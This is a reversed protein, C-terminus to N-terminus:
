MKLYVKMWGPFDALNESGKEKQGKSGREWERDGKKPSQRGDDIERRSFFVGNLRFYKSPNCLGGASDLFAVCFNAFTGRMKTQTPLLSFSTKTFWIPRWAPVINEPRQTVKDTTSYNPYARLVWNSIQVVLRNRARKLQEWNGITLLEGGNRIRRWM